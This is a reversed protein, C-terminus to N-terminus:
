YIDFESLTTYVYWLDIYILNLYHQICIGCIDSVKIFYLRISMVGAIVTKKLECFFIEFFISSALPLYTVPM